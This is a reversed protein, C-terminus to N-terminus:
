LWVIEGWGVFHEEIYKRIAGTSHCYYKHSLYTNRSTMQRYVDDVYTFFMVDLNEIYPTNFEENFKATIRARYDEDNEDTNRQLGFTEGWFDLWRGSAFRFMYNRVERVNDWEDFWRGVLEVYLKHIENDKRRLGSERHLKELIAEGHEGYIISPDEEEDEMLIPTEQIIATSSARNSEIVRKIKVYESLLLNIEELVAEQQAVKNSRDYKKFLIDMDAILSQLEEASDSDTERKYGLFTAYYEKVLKDTAESM